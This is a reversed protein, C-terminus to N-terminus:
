FILVHKLGRLAPCVSLVSITVVCPFGFSSL